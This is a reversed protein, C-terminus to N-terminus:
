SLMLGLMGAIVPASKVTARVDADTNVLWLTFVWVVICIPLSWRSAHGARGATPVMVVAMALVLGLGVDLVAGRYEVSQLAGRAALWLAAGAALFALTRGVRILGNGWRPQTQRLAFAWRAVLVCISGTIAAGAAFTVAGLPRHHTAVTIWYGLLSWPVLALGLGLTLVARWEPQPEPAGTRGLSLAVLLLSLLGCGVLALYELAGVPVQGDGPWFVRPAAWVLAGLLCVVYRM